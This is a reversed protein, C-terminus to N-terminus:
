DRFVRRQTEPHLESPSSVRPAAARAADAQDAADVSKREVKQVAKITEVEGEIKAQKRIKSDHRLLWLGFTAFVLFVTLAIQAWKNKAFFDFISFFVAQM